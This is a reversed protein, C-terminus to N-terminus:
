FTPYDSHANDLALQLKVARKDHWRQYVPTEIRFQKWLVKICFRRYLRRCIKVSTGRIIIALITLLAEGIILIQEKM